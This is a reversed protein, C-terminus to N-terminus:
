YYVTNGFCINHGHQMIELVDEERDGCAGGHLLNVLGALSDPADDHKNKGEQVFTTLELM